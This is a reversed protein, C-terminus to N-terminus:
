QFDIEEEKFTSFRFIAVIPRLIILNRHHGGPFDSFEIIFAEEGFKKAASILVVKKPSM